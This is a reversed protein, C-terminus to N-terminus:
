QLQVTHQPCIYFQQQAFIIQYTGGTSDITDQDPNKVKVTINQKQNLAMEYKLYLRNFFVISVCRQLLICFEESFCTSIYKTIIKHTCVFM